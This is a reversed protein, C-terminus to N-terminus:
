EKREIIKPHLDRNLDPARIQAILTFNASWGDMLQLETLLEKYSNLFKQIDNANHKYFDYTPDFHETYIIAKKLAFIITVFQDPSLEIQVKKM